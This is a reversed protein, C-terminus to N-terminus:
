IKSQVQFSWMGIEDIQVRAEFFDSGGFSETLTQTKSKGTPSTLILEAGVADHGERFVTAGFTIVEGLYAKAPYLGGDVEPKLSTIPIRGILHFPGSTM